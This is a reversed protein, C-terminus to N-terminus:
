KEGKNKKEKKLMSYTSYLFLAGILIYLATMGLSGSICSILAAAFWILTLIGRIYVHRM